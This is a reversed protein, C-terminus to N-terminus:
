LRLLLLRSGEGFIPPSAFTPGGATGGFDNQREASVPTVPTTHDNFWNNSDFVSNRIYDYLSGHYQNTGSRSRFSVEAGPHGGYEASYTSTNIRFEELADLMLIAQTTGIATQSQAQGGVGRAGQSADVFNNTQGGDVSFGNADTRQGNVSYQGNEGTIPNNTVVGPSLLVLTQFSRGNMPINEVFQRDIVTSVSADSTNINNASDSVTVSESLSGVELKFNEELNDQVNVTLGLLGAVKFGDHEVQIRYRGPQVNAVAYIGSKNTKTSVEAGQDINILHVSANTLVAGSPDTVRGTITATETQANASRLLCGFLPSAFIFMCALIRQKSTM